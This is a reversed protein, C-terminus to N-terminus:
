RRSSVETIVKHAVLSIRLDGPSSHICESRCIPLIFVLHSWLFVVARRATSVRSGAPRAHHFIYVIRTSICGCRDSTAMEM